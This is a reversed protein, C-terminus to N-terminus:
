PSFVKSVVYFVLAFAATVAVYHGAISRANRLWGLCTRWNM